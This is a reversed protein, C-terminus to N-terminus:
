SRSKILNHRGINASASDVSLAVCNSWPITHSTFVEEIKEFYM